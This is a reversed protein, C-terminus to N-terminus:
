KDAKNDLKDYLKELTLDIRDFRCQIDDKRSYHSPLCIEIHKIDSRLVEVAAWLQRAFWGMVTLASGALLNIIMQGDM